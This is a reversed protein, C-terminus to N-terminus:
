LIEAAPAGLQLGKFRTVFYTIFSVLIQRIRAGTGFLSQSPTANNPTWFQVSDTSNPDNGAAAPCRILNAPKFYSSAGSRSKDLLQPEYQGMNFVNSLNLSSSRKRGATDPLPDSIWVCLCACACWTLRVVRSM